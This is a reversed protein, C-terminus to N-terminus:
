AAEEVMPASLSKPMESFERWKPTFAAREKRGIAQGLIRDPVPKLDWVLGVSAMARLLYYSVDVEWWYFGQRVSNPYHHHNNHWGEGMTILALFFNNRSSDSTRFRRSGFVHALSNITAVGHFLVVTSVFFGWVLMQMGSTHLGPVWRQLVAGLLYTLAALTLPALADFRDLFRLEPYKALDKVLHLRTPINQVRGWWLAHSNWFGHEPPSHPDEPTDSHAHHHRHHAAWWLPGRQAATNGLFALLFQMLRSTKYTRHSLYRHYVATIGFMRIFYLAVAVLVAVPSIGVWFVLLAALNLLIFPWPPLWKWGAASSPTNESRGNLDSLDSLDNRSGGSDPQAILPAPFPATNHRIFRLIM